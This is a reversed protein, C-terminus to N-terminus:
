FLNIGSLKLVFVVCAWVINFWAIYCGWTRIGGVVKGIYKDKVMLFFMLGVVGCVMGFIPNFFLCLGIFGVVLSAIAFIM